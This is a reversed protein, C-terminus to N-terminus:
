KKKSAKPKAATKVPKAKAKPAAKATKAVKAPVKLKATSAKKAKAAAAKGKDMPVDCCVLDVTGCGCSEDVTVILGCADCSFVDGKKAKAM